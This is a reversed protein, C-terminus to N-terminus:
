EHHMIFQGCYPSTMSSSSIMSVWCRPLSSVWSRRARLTLRDLKREPAAFLSPHVQVPVHGDLRFRVGHEKRAADYRLAREGLNIYARSIALRRAGPQRQDKPNRLTDAYDDLTRKRRKDRCQRDARKPYELAIPAPQALQM